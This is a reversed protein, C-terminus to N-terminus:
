GEDKMRKKSTTRRTTTKKAAGEKATSEGAAKRKKPATSKNTARARSKKEAAAERAPETAHGVPPATQLNEPQVTSWVGIETESESREEATQTGSQPSPSDAAEQARRSENEILHDLVENEAQFWDDSERGSEGGRLQYIEYARAAILSQVQEDRLLRERLEEIIERSM